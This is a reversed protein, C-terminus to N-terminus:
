ETVRNSQPKPNIYDKGIVDSATGLSASGKKSNFKVFHPKESISSSSSGYSVGNTNEPDKESRPFSPESINDQKMNCLMEVTSELNRGEECYAKAIDDLSIASGFAELLKKLNSQDDDGDETFSSSSPVVWM